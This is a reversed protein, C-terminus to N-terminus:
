KHEGLPMAEAFGKGIQAMIKACGLYHYAANSQGTNLIEIEEDSFETARATELAPQFEKKSLEGEKQRKKLVNKLKSDRAVLNDLELDWYKETLVAVVNEGLEGAPAAMANRFNQHVKVYRKQDAAYKDTPGNVGMVGIVFPLDPASLDRRIDGIFHTLLKSYQQYGRDGDRDPYTGRDVMDNWGQFWVMGALEHGANPNYDPYVSKIDTLVNKVHDVTQRYYVGTSKEKEAKITELDRKQEKMRELTAPEFVYPGASPPRFDTNLSKGGWATKIILIPEGLRKQMYVGFTLEPGIKNEDAGFGATLYGSRVGNNSLLSICVNKFVRPEGNETQILDLIPKTNPDMGIHPFTRVQAHGQMNSQGVLVFVKLPKDHADSVQCLFFLPLLLAPLFSTKRINM